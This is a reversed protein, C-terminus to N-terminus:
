KALILRFCVEIYRYSEHDHENLAQCFTNNVPVPDLYSYKEYINQLHCCTLPVTLEKKGLGELKWVSNEYNISGNVGCCEFKVQALDMAATFQEEGSIGYYEQVTRVMETINLTLGLCQPWVTIGLCISFEFM